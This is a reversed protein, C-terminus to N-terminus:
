DFIRLSYDPALKCFAIMNEVAKAANRASVTWYNTDEPDYAAGKGWYESLVKGTKRETEEMAAIKPLAEELIPIAERGLKGNLGKLGNGGAFTQYFYWSWNFTCYFDLDGDTLERNESVVMYQGGRPLDAFTAGPRIRAKEDTKCLTINYGM